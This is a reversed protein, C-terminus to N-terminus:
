WDDDTAPTALLEMKGRWRILDARENVPAISRVDVRRPLMSEGDYHALGEIIARKSFNDAADEVKDKDMVCDIEAGGATLVLKGRLTLGRADIEKLMGDFMGHALGRFARDKKETDNAAEIAITAQAALFDDIRIVSDSFAIEAHSFTRDVGDSLREIKGILTTPFRAVSRDGNYIAKTAGEFVGIGSHAFGRRTKKKERIKIAASGIKLDSIMFDHLAKGNAIKDSERLADILTRIKRAFVDARVIRNDADLGHLVFTTEDTRTLNSGEL